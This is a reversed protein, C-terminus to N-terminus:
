RGVPWPVMVINSRQDLSKMDPWARAPTTMMVGIIDGTHLVTESFPWAGGLSDKFFAQDYDKKCFQPWPRMWAAAGGYWINDRLTFIWQNSYVTAPGGFFPVEPWGPDDYETCLIETDGPDFYVNRLRATEPWDKVHPPGFAIVAKQLDIGFRRTFPLAATFPGIVDNGIDRARVRWFFPGEPIDVSPTWSTINATEQITATALLTGFAQSSSVQFEYFVTGAPGTRGANVVTFTPRSAFVDSGATPTQVGPANFVINPRVVFSQTTSPEGAIGDVVARSRWFYTRGGELQPLVVSTTGDTGEAVGDRTVVVPSFSSSNAIELNYTVAKGGTRVANVIQLTIPQQTFNYTVGNAPTQLVPAVFSMSPRSPNSNGCAWVSVASALVLGLGLSRAKM